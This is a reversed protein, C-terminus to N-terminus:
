EIQSRGKFVEQILLDHLKSRFLDGPGHEQFWYKELDKRPAHVRLSFTLVKPFSNIEPCHALRSVPVERPNYNGPGTIKFFDGIYDGPGKPKHSSLPRIVCVSHPSAQCVRFRDSPYCILRSESMEIVREGGRFATELSLQGREGAEYDAQIPSDHCPSCPPTATVFCSEELILRTNYVIAEEFM